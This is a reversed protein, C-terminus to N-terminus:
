CRGAVGDGDPRLSSSPAERASRALSQGNSTTSPSTRSGAPSETPSRRDSRGAEADLSMDAAGDAWTANWGLLRQYFPVVAQPDATALTVWCPEGPSHDQHQM